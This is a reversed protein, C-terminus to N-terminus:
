PQVEGARIRAAYSKGKSKLHDAYEGYFDGDGSGGGADELEGATKGIFGEIARAGVERLIADTAPFDLEESRPIVEGYIREMACEWGHWMAEYRDTIGRDELGCGMGEKHFQPENDRNTVSDILSRMNANEAALARVQENLQAVEAAHDEFKVVDGQPEETLISTGWSEAHVYRKIGMERERRGCDAFHNRKEALSIETQWKGTISM